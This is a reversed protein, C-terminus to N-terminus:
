HLHQHNHKQKAIHHSARDQARALKRREAPTVVGDAKARAEMREIRAQEAELRQTERPALQGSAVGQAIRQQQRAERQDVLPMASQAFASGAAALTVTLCLTRLLKNM